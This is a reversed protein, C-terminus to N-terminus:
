IYGLERLRQDVIEEEAQDLKSADNKVIEGLLFSILSELNDFRGAMWEEAQACLDEPLSLTRNQTTLLESGM